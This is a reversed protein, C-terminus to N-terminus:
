APASRGRAAGRDNELPMKIVRPCDHCLAINHRFGRRHTCPTLFNLAGKLIMLLAINTEEGIQRASIGIDFM